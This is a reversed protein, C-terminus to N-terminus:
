KEGEELDQAAKLKELKARAERMKNFVSLDLPLKEGM